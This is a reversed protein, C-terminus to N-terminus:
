VQCIAVSIKYGETLLQEVTPPVSMASTRQSGARSSRSAAPRSSGATRRRKKSVGRRRLAVAGRRGRPAPDRRHVEDLGVLVEDEPGVQGAQALVVHLMSTSSLTRVTAPSRLDSCSACARPSRGGRARSRRTRARASAARPRRRRPSRRSTRCRRARPGRDGLGLLALRAAHLDATPPAAGPRDLALRVRLPCASACYSMPHPACSAGQLDQARGRSARAPRPGACRGRRRDARRREDRQRRLRRDLAELRALDGREAVVHHEAVREVQEELRAVLQDRLKPPRCSNMPQPAGIMVSEPPKWTKEIPWPVTASSILPRAGHPVFRARGPARRDVLLAHAEAGVDVARLPEHARLGRHLDLRRQARVDREDEVLARREVDVAVVRAREVSRVCRQSSRQRAQCSRARGSRGARRRSRAPRRRRPGACRTSAPPRRARRRRSRSRRSARRRCPASTRPRRSPSRPAAALSARGRWRSPMPSTSSRMRPTSSPMSVNSQTIGVRRPRWPTASM